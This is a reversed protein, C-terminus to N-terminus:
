FERALAPSVIQQPDAGTTKAAVFKKIFADGRGHQGEPFANAGKLGFKAASEAGM